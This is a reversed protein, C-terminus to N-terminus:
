KELVWMLCKIWERVGGHDTTQFVFTRGEHNSRMMQGLTAVERCEICVEYPRRIVDEDQVCKELFELLQELDKEKKM